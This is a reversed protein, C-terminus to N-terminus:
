VLVDGRTEEDFILLLSEADFPCQYTVSKRNKGIRTREIMEGKHTNVRALGKVGRRLLERWMQEKDLLEYGDFEQDEAANIFFSNLLEYDAFDNEKRWWRIFEKNGQPHMSVERVIDNARM